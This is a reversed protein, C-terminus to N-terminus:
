SDVAEVREEVIHLLESAFILRRLVIASDHWEVERHAPPNRFAQVAGVFLRQIGDEESAVADKVRLKGTPGFAKNMLDWGVESSPLGAASRVTMEVRRFAASVASDFQQPGREFLPLADAIIDPHLLSRPDKISTFFETLKADAKAFEIGQRSLMRGMATGSYARFEGVLLGYRDLYAVGEMLVRDLDEIRGYGNDILQRVTDAPVFSARDKPFFRILLRAAEEPSYTLLADKEPLGQQERFPRCYDVVLLRKATAM